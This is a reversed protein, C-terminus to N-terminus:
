LNPYATCRRLARMLAAIRRGMLLARRRTLIPARDNRWREALHEVRFACDGLEPYGFTGAAGALGHTIAEIGALPEAIEEWRARAALATAFVGISAGDRQLREAFAAAAEPIIDAFTV